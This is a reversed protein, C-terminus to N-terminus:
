PLKQSMKMRGWLLSERKMFKECWGCSVKFLSTITQLVNKQKQCERIVPFGKNWLYKFYELVSADIKPNRGKRPGSYSKRNKLSSFLKTKISWWQHLCAETVTYKRGVARNGMEEACLIVKRKFAADCTFCKETPLFQVCRFSLFALCHSVTSRPPIIHSSSERFTNVNPEKRSVRHVTQLSTFKEFKLYV